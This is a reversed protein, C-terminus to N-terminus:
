TAEEGGEHEEEAEDQGDELLEALDSLSVEGEAPQMEADGAM